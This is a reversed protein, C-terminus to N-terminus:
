ETRQLRVGFPDLGVAVRQADTEAPGPVGDLALAEAGLLHVVHELLHARQEPRSPPAIGLPLDAARGLRRVQDVEQERPSEGAFPVRVRDCEHEGLRRRARRRSDDGTAHLRERFERGRVLHL